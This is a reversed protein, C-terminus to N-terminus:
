STPLNMRRLLEAYRADDRLNKLMPEVKLLALTGERFQLSKKLWIFASDNDGLAVYILAM